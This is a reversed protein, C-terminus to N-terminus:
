KVAYTILIIFGVISFLILGLGLKRYPTEHIEQTSETGLKHAQWALSQSKELKQKITLLAATEKDYDEQMHSDNNRKVELTELKRNLCALQRDIENSIQRIDTASTTKNTKTITM